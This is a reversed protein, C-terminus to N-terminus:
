GRGQQFAQLRSAALALLQPCASLYWYTSRPDRHGLYTSLRPLCADVDVGTRYWDRLTAVAFSHRLDHTRPRLSSGAAIGAGDVLKRFTVLVSDYLLRAGVTSIFFSPATAQPALEDRRRAYASLAEVTSDHLPVERSKNFKSHHITLLMAGLDVDARDLRIAGGIRLGTVALLGILTQLTM